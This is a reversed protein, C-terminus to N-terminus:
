TALIFERVAPPLLFGPVMAVELIELWMPEFVQNTVKVPQMWFVKMVVSRM